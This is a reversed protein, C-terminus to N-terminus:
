GRMVADAAAFPEQPAAAHEPKGPHYRTLIRQTWCLPGFEGYKMYPYQFRYRGPSPSPAPNSAAYHPVFSACLSERFSERFAFELAGILHHNTANM